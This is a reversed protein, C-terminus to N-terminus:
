SASIKGTSKLVDWIESQVSRVNDALEVLEAMARGKEVVTSSREVLTDLISKKRVLQKLKTNLGNLQEMRSTSLSATIGSEIIAEPIRQEIDDSPSINVQGINLSILGDQNDRSSLQDRVFSWGEMILFKISESLVLTGLELQMKPDEKIAPPVLLSLNVLSRAPRISDRKASVYVDVSATVPKDHLKYLLNAAHEWPELTKYTPLVFWDLDLRNAGRHENAGQIYVSTSPIAEVSVLMKVSSKQAPNNNKARLFLKEKPAKRCHLSCSAPALCHNALIAYFTVQGQLLEGRAAHDCLQRSIVVDAWACLQEPSNEPNLGCWEQRDLSNRLEEPDQTEETM